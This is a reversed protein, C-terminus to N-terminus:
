TVVLNVSVHVPEPTPARVAKLFKKPSKPVEWSSCYIRILGLSQQQGSGLPLNGKCPVVCPNGGGKSQLPRQFLLLAQQSLGIVDALASM